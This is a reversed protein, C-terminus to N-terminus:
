VEWYDVSLFSIAAEITLIPVVVNTQIGIVIGLSVEPGYTSFMIDPKPLLRVSIQLCIHCGDTFIHQCQSESKVLIVHQEDFCKSEIFWTQHKSCLLQNVDDLASEDISLLQKDKGKRKSLNIYSSGEKGRYEEKKFKEKWIRKICVGLLAANM